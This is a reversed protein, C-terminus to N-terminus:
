YLLKKRALFNWFFVIINGIIPAVLQNIHLGGVMAAMLAEYIVLGFANIIVFLVFEAHKSKLKRTAFVWTVSLYFNAIIGLCYGLPAAILYHIGLAQNLLYYGAINIVLAAASVVLSRWLQLSYRDTPLPHFIERLWRGASFGSAKYYGRSM